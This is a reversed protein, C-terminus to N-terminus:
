TRCFYPNRFTVTIHTVPEYIRKLNLWVNSM